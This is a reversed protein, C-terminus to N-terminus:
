DLLKLAEEATLKLGSGVSNMKPLKEFISRIQNRISPFHCLIAVGMDSIGTMFIDAVDEGVPMQDIRKLLARGTSTQYLFRETQSPFRARLRALSSTLHMKIEPDDNDFLIELTRLGFYANLRSSSYVSDTILMELREKNGRALETEIIESMSSSLHEGRYGEIFM